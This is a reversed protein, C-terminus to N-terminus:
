YEKTITKGKIIVISINDRKLADESEESSSARKANFM